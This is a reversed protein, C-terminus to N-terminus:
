RKIFSEFDKHYKVPNFEIVEYDAVGHLYFPDAQILDNVAQKDNLSSILIGGTRPNQPGSVVLANNAYYTDLYNRHDVVYKDVIELPQKYKIIIVFM